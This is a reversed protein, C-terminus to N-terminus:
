DLGALLYTIFEEDKLPQRIIALTDALAKMKKLYEIASLGGKKLTAL